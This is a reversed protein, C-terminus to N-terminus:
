QYKLVVFVKTNNYQVCWAVVSNSINYKSVVRTCYEEYTKIEKPYKDRSIGYM